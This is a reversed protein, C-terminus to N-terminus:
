LQNDTGRGEQFTVARCDLDNFGVSKFGIGHDMHHYFAFVQDGGGFGGSQTHHLQRGDKVIEFRINHYTDGIAVFGDGRRDGGRIEIYGDRMNLATLHGAGDIFFHAMRHRFQGIQVKDRILLCGFTDDAHAFIRFRYKYGTARRHIKRRAHQGLSLIIEIGKLM